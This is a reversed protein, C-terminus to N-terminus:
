NGQSYYNNKKIKKMSTDNENSKENRSNSKYVVTNM